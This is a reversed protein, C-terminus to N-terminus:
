ISQIEVSYYKSFRCESDWIGSAKEIVCLRVTSLGMIFRGAVMDDRSGVHKSFIVSQM